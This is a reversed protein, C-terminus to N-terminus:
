ALKHRTNFRKRRETEPCVRCKEAQVLQCIIQSRLKAPPSGCARKIARAFSRPSKYGLESSLAKIARTPHSELATKVREVRLEDRLERFTKGTSMRVAYQLTRRSVRLERTLDTLPTSPAGNLRRLVTDILSNRKNPM